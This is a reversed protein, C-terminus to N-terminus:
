VPRSLMPSFCQITYQGRAVDLLSQIRSVSWRISILCKEMDIKQKIRRYLEDHSAAWVLDCLYCLFFWSVYGTIIRQLGSAKQEMLATLLLLVEFIVSKREEPQDIPYAAGRSSPNKEAL